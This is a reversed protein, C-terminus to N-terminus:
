TQPGKLKKEEGILMLESTRKVQRSDCQQTEGAMSVWPGECAKCEAIAECKKFYKNEYNYRLPLNFICSLYVPFVSSSGYIKLFQNKTMAAKRTAWVTFFRGTICSVPTRDRPWFSERSFAIAVWKFSGHVALFDFWDIWFSILGSSPLVSASAGISQGGSVSGVWQFLGQHQSLNLAPPPPPSLMVLRIATLKLLSWSITVSCGPM